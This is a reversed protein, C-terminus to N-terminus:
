SPSATRIQDEPKVQALVGSAVGMAVVAFALNKLKM